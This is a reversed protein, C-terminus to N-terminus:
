MMCATPRPKIFCGIDTALAMYYKAKAELQHKNAM